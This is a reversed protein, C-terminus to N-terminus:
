AQKGAAKKPAAKKAPAKKAAAKKATAKKAGAKKKVPGRARREALLEAAREDTLTAIEDGKRLSANTGEGDTVYPGFRGEKVVMPKGTVPDAGLEKLPAKPAAAKRGYTKPTALLALAQELTIDFLAEESELSRSEKLRSIYPGYRGNQATVPEGEHEGLVRPLTLLKLAQELTITELDMSAFLSGTPPKDKSGEPLVLSVYPGYRGARAVVDYGTVPDTGLVRDRVARRGARRGQRRHARGARPGRAALGEAPGGRRRRRGPRVPGYRGVRVVVPRGDEALGIPITSIARADIEDLNKGIIKKLGGQRALGGEKGDPSGFYFRSLWEVSNGQGGAIVDLDDELSATFGYDVLRDFHQELLNVSPSPSGPRCSRRARRGCTAATRSPRSSARTPARGASASSRSGSSWRPRPTAPRRAPPTAPPTWGSSTSRTAAASGPCGSRPTTRRPTTTTPRSSTRRLFGPFTIVRGSAAFEADQGDPTTAGLRISATVGRADAM